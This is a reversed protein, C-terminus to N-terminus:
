QREAAGSEELAQMSELMNQFLGVIDKATVLGCLKGAQDLVPLYNIQKSLMTVGANSLLTEPDVCIPNATM